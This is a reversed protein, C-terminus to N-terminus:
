QYLAGRVEILLRYGVTMGIRNVYPNAMTNQINTYWVYEVNYRDRQLRFCLNNNNIYAMVVDSNGAIIQQRRKDDMTVCPTIVTSPLSTFVTGPILPDFWWFGPSGNAVFAIVPHMNQDFSLRAWTVNPLDFLKTLPTNPADVWVSTTPGAGQVSLHWVQYQLGQSGDSLGIGGEEWDELPTPPIDDPSLYATIIPPQVLILLPNM